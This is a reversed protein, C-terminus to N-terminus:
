PAAPEGGKRPDSAAELHDPDLVIVQVASQEEAPVVKQGRKKLNDRVDRPIEDEVYLADPIWQDHIRPSSVAAEADMGFDIVNVVAQVTGSVITPGGSAGACMVARGDKVVVLPSMSSLPRKGAQVSNAFGGILGFQNPAGPQAAFDDMEDNLLVGSDGGQVLAGFYLNITTTLAVVDGAGDAVCLHSTGHDHAADPPGALAKDGYDTIKEVKDDSIRGALQRAYAPDALHATPVKVFAPDGLSRARDAFANKLAEAIEHDAASSGAGLPGLPPRADLIQLTEVTTLGGAPPPVTYLDRGRFRGHLADRWIPRYGALDAETLIGGRARVAGVIARATEGKYFSDPGRAALRSLTRALEPRALKQGAALLGGRSTLLNRLPDHPPVAVQALVRTAARALYPTVFFGDRALAIAPRAAAKLGLKGFRAEIAALGAPEGPVAVALGGIRSRMPVVKGATVFMDPRAAAPATERFDLAYAAHNKADWYLLFGGGGLGSSVPDVVGLALATAVAADVANGGEALLKAGARSAEAHDAAVMGRAVPGSLPKPFAAEAILAVGFVAFFVWVGIRFLAASGRRTQM